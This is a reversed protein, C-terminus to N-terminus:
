PGCGSCTRFSTAAAARTPQDVDDRQNALELFLLSRVYHAVICSDSNPPEGNQQPAWVAQWGHSPKEIAAKAGQLSTQASPDWTPSSDSPLPPQHDDDDNDSGDEIAVTRRPPAPISPKQDDPLPPQEDDPLPPAVPSVSRQRSPGAEANEHTPPTPTPPQEDVPLPPPSPSRPM